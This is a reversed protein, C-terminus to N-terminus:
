VWDTSGFELGEFASDPYHDAMAHLVDAVQRASLTANEFYVTGYYDTPEHETVFDPDYTVIVWDHQLSFTAIPTDDTGKGLEPHFEVHAVTYGLKELRHMVEHEVHEDLLFRVAM